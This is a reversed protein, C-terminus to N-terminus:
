VQNWVENTCERIREPPWKSPNAKDKRIKKKTIGHERYLKSLIYPSVVKAGYKKNLFDVRLPMSLTAM